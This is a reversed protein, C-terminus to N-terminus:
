LRIFSWKLASFHPSYRGHACRIDEAGIRPQYVLLELLVGLVRAGYILLPAIVELCVARRLRLCLGLLSRLLRRLMGRLLSLTSSGGALLLGALSVHFFGHSLRLFLGSLGLLGHLLGLGREVADRVILAAFLALELAHELGNRLVHFFGQLNRGCGGHAIHRDLEHPFVAGHDIVVELAGATALDGKGVDDAVGHNLGNLQVWVHVHAVLELVALGIDDLRLM